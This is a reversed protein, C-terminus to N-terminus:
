FFPHQQRSQYATCGCVKGVGLIGQLTPLLLALRRSRHAFCGFADDRSPLSCRFESLRNMLTSLWRWGHRVAGFGAVRQYASCISLGALLASIFLFVSATGYQRGPIQSDVYVQVTRGCGNRGRRNSCFLRKGVAERVTMSRQKYVFGHSVWARTQHCHQCVPTQTQSDLTLSFQNIAHISHFFKQM